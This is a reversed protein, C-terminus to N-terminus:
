PENKEEWEYSGMYKCQQFLHLCLRMYDSVQQENPIGDIYESIGLLTDCGSCSGYDVSTYVYEGVSPQYTDLHLIFILTGQYDGDDIKLINKTDFRGYCGVRTPNIVIDFLLKVLDDYTSYKEQPTTRFYEELNKKNVDWATVFENIM